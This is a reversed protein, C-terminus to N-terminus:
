GRRKKAEEEYSAKVQEPTQDAYILSSNVSSINALSAEIRGCEGQTEQYIGELRKMSAQGAQDM